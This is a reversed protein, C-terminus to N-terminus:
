RMRRMHPTRHPQAADLLEDLAPAMAEAIPWADPVLNPSAAIGVDISDCYSIVTIDLAVGLVLPGFLYCSVVRAGGSFLPVPPGPLNSVVANFAPALRTTLGSTEVTRIAAGIVGPPVTDALHQIMEDGLARHLVKATTTSEHIRRLRELPDAVDTALTTGLVSTTNGILAGAQSGLGGITTPVTATLSRDPLEHRDELYSRLAGGCVALVVDNVKVGCANKVAKVDTLSLSTSALARTRVLRGNLSTRPGVFPLVSADRNGALLARSVRAVAGAGVVLTRGVRWPTTALTIAAHGAVAAPGPAPEANHRDEERHGAAGGLDGLEGLDDLDYLLEFMNTAQPGGLLAHHVKWVLAVRGHELGDVFWVRWLPQDRPLPDALLQAALEALQRETGPRPLGVARIHRRVDFDHADVWVPWDLGWPPAALRLRFPVLRDVRSAIVSRFHDVDLQSTATSPDLITISAGHFPMTPTEAYLFAADQGNLRRSM